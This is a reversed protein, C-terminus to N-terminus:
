LPPPRPRGGRLLLTPIDNSMLGERLWLPERGLKRLEDVVLAARWGRCCVVLTGKKLSKLRVPKDVFGLDADYGARLVSCNPPACKLGWPTSQENDCDHPMRVDLILVRRAFLAPLDAGRVWSNEPPLNTKQQAHAGACWAIIFLAFLTRM